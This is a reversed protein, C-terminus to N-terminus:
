GFALSRYNQSLPQIRRRVLAGAKEGPDELSYDHNMMRTDRRQDKTAITSRVPPINIEAGISIVCGEGALM